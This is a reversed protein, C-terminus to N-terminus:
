LSPRIVGVAIGEIAFEVEGPNVIIPEFDPNEAILKLQNSSREFRQSSLTQTVAVDEVEVLEPHYSVYWGTAVVVLWGADEAADIAAITRPSITQDSRLLTGDLDTAIARFRM